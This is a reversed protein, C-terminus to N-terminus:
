ENRKLRVVVPIVDEPPRGRVNRDFCIVEGGAKALTYARNVGIFRGACPIRGCARRRTSMKM